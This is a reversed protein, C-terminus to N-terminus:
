SLSLAGSSYHLALQLLVLSQYPPTRFQGVSIKTSCNSFFEFLKLRGGVLTKDKRSRGRVKRGREAEGRRGRGEARIRSASPIKTTTTSTSTRSTTTARATATAFTTTTTGADCTTAPTPSASSSGSASTRTGTSTRKSWLEAPFSTFFNQRQSMEDVQIKTWCKGPLRFEVLITYSFSTSWNLDFKNSIINQNNM